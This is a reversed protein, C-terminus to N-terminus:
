PEVEDRERFRQHDRPHKIALAHAGAITIIIGGLTATLGVATVITEVTM